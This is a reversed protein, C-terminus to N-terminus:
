MKNKHIFCFHSNKIKNKCFEGNQLEKGCVYEYCGNNLKKKNSNWLKSAQDFDINIEYEPRATQSRTLM